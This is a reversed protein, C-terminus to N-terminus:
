LLEGRLWGRRTQRPAVRYKHISRQGTPNLQPDPAAAASGVLLRKQAPDLDTWDLEHYLIHIRAASAGHLIKLSHQLWLPWGRKQYSYPSFHILLAYDEAFERRCRDIAAPLVSSSCAGFHRVYLLRGRPRGLWPKRTASSSRPKCPMIIAFSDQSNFRTIASEM